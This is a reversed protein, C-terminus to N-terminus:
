DKAITYKKNLTVIGLAIAEALQKQYYQKRLTKEEYRNSLYGLEVLVSPTYAFRLVYYPAQKIPRVTFGLNKFTSYLSNAVDISLAYNKTLMMDWLITKVESSLKKKYGFDGQKALLVARNQSDLRAPSLYYIEAGSLAASPNSNSHISLFLDANYKKAVRVREELTLFTDHSRTLIVKFGRSELNEKLYKVVALNINKERLKNRSIAGPDKGGHGADLVITKSVFAPKVTLPEKSYILDELSRPIIIKGLSYYPASDINYIAGNLYVTPTNLLLRIEEKESFIRVIDDVTDFDYQLSYKRCFENIDTFGLTPNRYSSSVPVTACAALFILLPLLILFKIKKFM